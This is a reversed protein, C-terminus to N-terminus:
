VPAVFRSVDVKGAELGASGLRLGAPPRDRSEADTANGLALPFLRDTIPDPSELRM